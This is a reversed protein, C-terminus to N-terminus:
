IAPFQMKDVFSEVVDPQFSTFVGNRRPEYKREGTIIEISM